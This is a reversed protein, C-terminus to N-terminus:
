PLNKGYMFREGITAVQNDKPSILRMRKAHTEFWGVINDEAM